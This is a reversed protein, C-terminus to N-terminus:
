APHVDYFQPFGMRLGTIKRNYVTPNYVTGLPIYPVDIWFQKQIEM